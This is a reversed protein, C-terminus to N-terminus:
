WVYAGLPCSASYNQTIFSFTQPLVHITVKLNEALSSAMMELEISTASVRLAALKGANKSEIIPLSKRSNYRSSLGKGFEPSNHCTEGWAGSAREHRVAAHPVVERVITADGPTM